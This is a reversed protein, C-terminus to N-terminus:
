DFPLTVERFVSEAWRHKPISVKSRRGAGRVHTCIHQLVAKRFRRILRWGDTTPNSWGADVDTFVIIRHCDVRELLSMQYVTSIITTVDLPWRRLNRTVNKRPHSMAVISRLNVNRFHNWTLLICEKGEANADFVRAIPERKATPPSYRAASVCM